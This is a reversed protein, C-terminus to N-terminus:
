TRNVIERCKLCKFSCCASLQKVQETLAKEAQVCLLLLSEVSGGSLDSCGSSIAAECVSQLIAGIMVPSKHLAAKMMMMAMM